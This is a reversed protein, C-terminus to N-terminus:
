QDRRLIDTVFEPIMTYPVPSGHGNRVARNIAGTHDWAVVVYGRMAPMDRAIEQAERPLATAIAAPTLQSENHYVCLKAGGKLRVRGIRCHPESEETV